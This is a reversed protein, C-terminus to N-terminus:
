TLSGDLVVGVVPDKCSGATIRVALQYGATVPVSVNASGSRGTVMVSLLDVEGIQAGQHQSITVTFSTTDFQTILVKRITPEVFAVVRGTRNSLVGDNNLYANPTFTTDITGDRGWTFGPSASFGVSEIPREVGDDDMQFLRGKKFYLERANKNPAQEPGVQKDRLRVTDIVFQERPDKGGGRSM